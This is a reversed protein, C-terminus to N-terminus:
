QWGQSPQHHQQQRVDQQELYHDQPLGGGVHAVQQMPGSMTEGGARNAGPNQMGQALSTAGQMLQPPQTAASPAPIHGLETEKGQRMVARTAQATRASILAKPSQCAVLKALNKELLAMLKREVRRPKGAERSYRLRVLQAIMAYNSDLLVDVEEQTEPVQV